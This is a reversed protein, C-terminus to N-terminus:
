RRFILEKILLGETFDDSRITLEAKIEHEEEDLVFLHQCFIDKEPSNQPLSIATRRALCNRTILVYDKEEKFDIQLNQPQIMEFDIGLSTSRKKIKRLERKLEDETILNYGDGKFVKMEVDFDISKNSNNRITIDVYKINCKSLEDDDSTAFYPEIILDGKRDKATYRTKYINEFDARALKRTSTGVRIFGDGIKFEPSDKHQKKVDKKFLYPRSKNNYIRFYALYNGEYIFSKYEFNIIPELNEAVFKQYNAEDTLHEINFFNDPKGDKEKVGIIIYKDDDSPHNAFASIDKLFENRKEQQGLPYEEMKYDLTSSECDYKIIRVLDQNM